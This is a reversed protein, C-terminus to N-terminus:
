PMGSAASTRHRSLERLHDGAEIANAFTRAQGGAHKRLWAVVSARETLRGVEIGRTRSAKLSATRDKGNM